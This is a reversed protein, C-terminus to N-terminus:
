RSEGEKSLQYIKALTYTTLFAKMQESIQSWVSQLTCKNGLCFRNSKSDCGLQWATDEVATMISFLEIQSPDKALLYGGKSGSTSSLIGATKLGALLHEVYKKPLSQKRCIEATSVPENKSDMIELLARIAYETRTNIAVKRRRNLTRRCSM